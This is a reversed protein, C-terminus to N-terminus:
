IKWYHKWGAKKSCWRAQDHYRFNYSFMADTKLLAGLEAIELHLECTREELTMSIKAPSSRGGLNLGDILNTGILLIISVIVLVQM